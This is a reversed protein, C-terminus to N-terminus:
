VLDRVMMHFSTNQTKIKDITLEDLYKKGSSEWLHHSYANPFEINKEFLSEM